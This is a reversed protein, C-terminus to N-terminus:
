VSRRRMPNAVGIWSSPPRGMLGDRSRTSARDWLAERVEAEASKPITPDDRVAHNLRRIMDNHDTLGDVCFAFLAAADNPNYPRETSGDRM